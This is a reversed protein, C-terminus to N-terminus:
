NVTRRTDQASQQMGAEGDSPTHLDAVHVRTVVRAQGQKNGVFGKGDAAADQLGNKGPTFQAFNQPVSKEEM